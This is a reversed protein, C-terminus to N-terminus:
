YPPLIAPIPAVIAPEAPAAQSVPTSSTTLIPPLNAPTPNIESGKHGRGEESEQEGVGSEQGRVGSGQKMVLGYVTAAPRGSASTRHERTIYGKSVLGTQARNLSRESVGAGRDVLTGDTRHVGGLFQSRSIADALKRNGSKDCYGLTHDFICLMVRLESESLDQMWRRIFDRPIMVFQSLDFGEFSTPAAEAHNNTEITPITSM